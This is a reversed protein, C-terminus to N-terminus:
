NKAAHDGFVRQGGRYQTRNTREPPIDSNAPVIKSAVVPM